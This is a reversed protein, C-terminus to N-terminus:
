LRPVECILVDVGHQAARPSFLVTPRWQRETDAEFLCDRMPTGDFRQSLGVVVERRRRLGRKNWQSGGGAPTTYDRPPIRDTV